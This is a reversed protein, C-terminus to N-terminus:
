FSEGFLVSLRESSGGGRNARVHGYELTVNPVAGLLLPSSNLRIGAGYAVLQRPLFPDAIVSHPRGIAGFLYPALQMKATGVPTQVRHALEGRVTVGGDSSLAGATLPSLSDLGSLDFLESSPLVHGFPTQGRAILTLSSAKGLSQRIVAQADAVTFQPDGPTRAGLLRTGQSVTADATLTASPWLTGRWSLNGRLVTLRDKSLTIGFFPLRQNESLLEITARGTLTGHASYLLPQSLSLAGRYLRGDTAFIPNGPIPHTDSVTFEPNLLLGSSTLPITAGVGAVRRPASARFARYVQPDGSLFLYFQEGLGLPSNLQAQVNLGWDRFSPGLRNDGGISLGALQHRGELILKAGGPADGRALTSRLTIGPIASAAGLRREIEALQLHRKGIVSRMQRVVPMAVRGPLAHTDVSEIFGDVIRIHFSDGDILRQKVVVVRALFYGADSYANELMAAGRYLDAVTVKRDELPSLIHRSVPELEPFGGDVEVRLVRIVIASSGAPVETPVAQELDIPATPVVTEPRISRPTVQSPAIPTPITPIVQASAAGPGILAACLAIVTDPRTWRRLPAAVVVATVNRLV